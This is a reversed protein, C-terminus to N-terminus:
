RAIGKPIAGCKSKTAGKDVSVRNVHETAGHGLRRFHNDVLQPLQDASGRNAGGIGTPVLAVTGHDIQEGAPKFGHRQDFLLCSWLLHQDPSRAFLTNM